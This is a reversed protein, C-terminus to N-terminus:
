DRGGGVGWGGRGNCETQWGGDRGPLAMRTVSGGQVDSVPSM